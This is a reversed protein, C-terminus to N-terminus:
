AMWINAIWNSPALASINSNSTAAKAIATKVTVQIYLCLLCRTDYDDIERAPLPEINEPLMVRRAVNDLAFHLLRAVGDPFFETKEGLLMKENETM